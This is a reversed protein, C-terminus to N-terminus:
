KLAEIGPLKKGALFELMAGGGTCIYDVKDLNNFKNMATITEGGGIITYGKSKAIAESIKKTGLSFDSNEFMGMPGNWVITKSKCIIESYLEGTDPGIDMIQNNKINGIASLFIKKNEFNYNVADIPFHLRKDTIDIGKIKEIDIDDFLSKGTNIGKARLIVNAVIGGILIHNFKNMLNLIVPLKTKTKAGGIIITAPKVPNAIVQSLIKIEKELLLGAFSPLFNTIAVVSSHQRHSVAFADNIYIDAYSAIEKAFKEENLEEEKYFRLNELLFVEGVKIEDIASKVKEGLCDDIFEIKHNLLEALRKAVPKLSNEKRNIAINGKQPRGFHAILIIKAENKILFKITSLSAKIRWDSDKNVIGDELSVNFDVRLLVKKNKLNKVEKIFKM